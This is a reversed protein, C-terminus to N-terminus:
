GLAELIRTLVGDLNLLVDNDWFRIVRLGQGELWQTRQEDAKRGVPEGHQSGDIEVILKKDFSVYDVIYVGLPQQRRFKVGALHENRLRSWLNREADSQGRRFSRAFAAFAVKTKDM